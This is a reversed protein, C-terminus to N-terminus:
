HISHLYIDPIPFFVTEARITSVIITAQKALEQLNFYKMELEVQDNTADTVEPVEGNWVAMGSAKQTHMGGKYVDLNIVILQEHKNVFVGHVRLLYPEDENLSDFYDEFVTETVLCGEQKCTTQFASFLGEWALKIGDNEENPNIDKESAFPIDASTDKEVM